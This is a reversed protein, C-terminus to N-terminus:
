PTVAAVVSVTGFYPRLVAGSALVVKMDWVYQGAVDTLSAGPALVNSLASLAVTVSGDSTFLATDTISTLNATTTESLTQDVIGEGVQFIGTVGSVTLVRANADFTVVTGTANSVSGNISDGVGFNVGIAAGPAFVLAKAPAGTGTCALACAVVSTENSRKIEASVMAGTLDKPSNNPQNVIFTASFDAGQAIDFDEEVGVNSILGM